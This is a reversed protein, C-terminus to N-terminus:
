HHRTDWGRSACAPRPLRPSAHRILRYPPTSFASAERAALLGGIIDNRLPQPNAFHGDRWEPSHAMRSRREGTARHGIPRWAVATLAVAAVVFLAAAWGAARIAFRQVVRGSASRRSMETFM